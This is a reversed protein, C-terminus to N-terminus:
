FVTSERSLLQRCCKVYTELANPCARRAAVFGFQSRPPYPDLGIGLSMRMGARRNMSRTGGWRILVNKIRNAKAKVNGRTASANKARLRM